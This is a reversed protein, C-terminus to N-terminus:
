LCRVEEDDREAQQARTAEALIVSKVAVLPNSPRGDLEAAFGCKQRSKLRNRLLDGLYTRYYMNLTEAAFFSRTHGLRADRHRSNM